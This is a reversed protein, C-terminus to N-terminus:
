KKGRGEKTIEGSDILENIVKDLIGNIFDKSKPTSYKKALDIYENLTVKIPITEFYQAEAVAMKMLIMDIVAVRSSDWNKLKPDILNFLKEEFYLVKHLLELGFDEVTIKDPRFNDPFDDNLPLSKIVKKFAGLILSKDDDWHPYLDTIHETFREQKVLVSFINRLMKKHDEDTCNDNKLYAQYAESKQILQYYDRILDKDVQNKFFKEKAYKNFSPHEQISKSVSNSILKDTFSKDEESPLLKGSRNSKDISSYEAVRLIIYLNFLLLEYSQYILKLYTKKIAEELLSSDRNQMYLVQLIKVRINRRSLM